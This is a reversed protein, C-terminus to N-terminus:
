KIKKKECACIGGKQKIKDIQKLEKLIIKSHKKNKSIDKKLKKKNDKEKKIRKLINDLLKKDKKSKTKKCKKQLEKKKKELELIKEVIKKLKKELNDILKFNKRSEKHKKKLLKELDKGGGLARGDLARRAKFIKKREADVKSSMRDDDQLDGTYARGDFTVQDQRAPRKQGPQMPGRVRNQVISATKHLVNDAWKQLAVKDDQYDFLPELQSSDDVQQVQKQNRLVMVSHGTIEGVTRLASGFDNTDDFDLSFIPEKWKEKMEVSITELAFPLMEDIISKGDFDPSKNNDKFVKFMISLPTQKGVSELNMGLYYLSVAAFDKIYDIRKRNIEENHALKLPVYSVTGDKRYIISLFDFSALVCLVLYAQKVEREIEYQMPVTLRHDSSLKSQLKTFYVGGELIENINDRRSGIAQNILRLKIMHNPISSIDFKITDIFYKRAIFEKFQRQPHLQKWVMKSFDDMQQQSPVVRPDRMNRVHQLANFDEEQEHIKEMNDFTLTTGDYRKAFGLNPRTLYEKTREVTPKGDDDLIIELAQVENREAAAAKRQAATQSKLRAVGKAYEPNYLDPQKTLRGSRRPRNAPESM